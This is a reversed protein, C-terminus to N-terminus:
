PCLRIPVYVIQYVISMYQGSPLITRYVLKLSASGKFAFSINTINSYRIIYPPAGFLGIRLKRGILVIKAFKRVKGAGLVLGCSSWVKTRVWRMSNRRTAPLMALIDAAVADRVINRRGGCRTRRWPARRLAEVVDCAVSAADFVAELALSVAELAVEFAESPSELTVEDAPDLNLLAPWATLLVSPLM